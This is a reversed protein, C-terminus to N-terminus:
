IATVMTPCDMNVEVIDGSPCVKRGNSLALAHYDDLYSPCEEDRPHCIRDSCLKYGKKCVINTACLEYDDVCTGLPCTLNPCDYSAPCELSNKRCTNDDCLVYGKSCTLISPCFASDHSWHLFDPCIIGPVKYRYPSDANRLLYKDIDTVCHNRIRKHALCSGFFLCMSPPCMIVNSCHDLSTQCTYDACQYPAYAPCRIADNCFDAEM